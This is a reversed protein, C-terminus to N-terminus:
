LRSKAVRSAEAALDDIVAWDLVIRGAQSLEYFGDDINARMRNQVDEKDRWDVILERRIANDIMLAIEVAIAKDTGSGLRDLRELAIRYYAQAVDHGALQPPLDDGTRTVVQDRLDRIRRLYEIESLLQDRFAQITDRLMESFKRFLAPDEDMRETITRETAFAITDAKAAPTDLADIAREMAATDFINVPELTLIEVTDSSVYTDLLKAIQPELTKMDVVEAYRRQVSARLKQFRKLDKKYREAEARPRAFTAFSASRLADLAFPSAKPDPCHEVKLRVSEEGRRVLFAEGVGQRILSTRVWERPQACAVERALEAADTAGTQFYLQTQSNSLVAHRLAQPLQSLNQHSLTLGLGFRRGEALITEFRETAMTEFEDIYLNIPTRDEEPQDVRAMIATQLSSVLLGGVLHAAGHLRDVALSILIIHGPSNDLLDPLSFGQRQGLMLRIGPIALLPTVKNLVPLRWATQRDESLDGYRAFFSRVQSDTVSSLVSQRFAPECLLPEIELM